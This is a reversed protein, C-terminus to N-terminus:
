GARRARTRAAKRAAASGSGAGKTHAAKRTAASRATATRHAAARRAHRSLAARSATSRPEHELVRKVARAVRPRRHTRREHQGAEYAYEASRRTREKVRGKKPPRLAVGARRAESLGIAIAQEPSRAGHEGRRIKRIEEHVFEGAQTSPAKGARKDKRAKEVIRKEPM